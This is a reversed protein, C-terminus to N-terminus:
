FALLTDSTCQLFSDAGEWTDADWGMSFWSFCINWLFDIKMEFVM